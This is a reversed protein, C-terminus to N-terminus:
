AHESTWRCHFAKGRPQDVREFTHSGFFDRQAQLLNMPLRQSRFSDFYELSSTLAPISVGTAVALGVVRRWATQRKVLEQAFEPDLLLHTLGGEKSFAQKIKDLIKARIICGGKWIRACEGLNIGWNFEVSAQHILQLGQAYAVLKSCFLADRLDSVLQEKDVSSWDFAPGPMMAAARMRMDKEGSIYREFLASAITPASIGREAAEKVTMMGTGKSGAVDLIKDVLFGEQAPLGMVDEDHKALILSTIEVLYSELEGKNWERFIGSMEDNSFGANKLMHYVAIILEMDGYEIGNHVMKVYNGSGAGGIYTVCAENDVQAAIKTLISELADYSEKRGSPMLSPGHRAGIEGGSVGMSVFNFGKEELYKTRRISEEFWENGGDM